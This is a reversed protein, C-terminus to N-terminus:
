LGPTSASPELSSGSMAGRGMATRIVAETDIADLKAEVAKVAAEIMRAQAAVAKARDGRGRQHFFDVLEAYFAKQAALLTNGDFADRVQQETVHHAEFQGALLSCIVQGLLMEDTGLRTILPPDGAEPELLDVGLADKVHMASGLTLSIVWMRGATDVFTKM